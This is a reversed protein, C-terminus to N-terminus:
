IIKNLKSYVLYSVVYAYLVDISYHCRTLIIFISNIINIAWLIKNHLPSLYEYRNAYFVFLSSFTVHGSPLLDNNHGIHTDKLTVYDLLIKSCSRNNDKDIMIGCKPLTTMSFSLARLFYNLSMMWLFKPIHKNFVFILLFVYINIPIDTIKYYKSFNLSDTHLIDPLPINGNKRNSSYKQCFVTFYLSGIFILGSLFLENSLKPLSIHRKLIKFIAYFFKIYLSLLLEIISPIDSVGTILFKSFRSIPNKLKSYLSLM